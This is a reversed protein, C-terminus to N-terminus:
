ATTETTAYLVGMIAWAVGFVVGPYGGISQWPFLAILALPALLVGAGARFRRTRWLTIGMLALCIGLLPPALFLAVSGILNALSDDPWPPHEGVGVQTTMILNGIAFVGLLILAGMSAIAFLRGSFSLFRGRLSSLGYGLLLASPSLLLMYNDRSFGFLLRQYDFSGPGHTNLYAVMVVAWLCGGIIFAIAGRKTTM